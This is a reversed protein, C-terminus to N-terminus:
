RCEPAGAARINLFSLAHPAPKGNGPVAAQNSMTSALRAAATM